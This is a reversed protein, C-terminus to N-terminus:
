VSRFTISIRTGRPIRKGDVVDSKRSPMSHKWDYRSEGSMVYLSGPMPYVEKTEEDRSFVLTSPSGVTFCCIHDMYATSDIHASIGQGPLYMNIICQNLPIYDPIIGAQKILFRLKQIVPPFPDTTQSTNGTKYNYQYGFQMVHRSNASSSVPVWQDSSDFFENLEKMICDPIIDPMYTFGPIDM